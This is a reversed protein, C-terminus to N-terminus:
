KEPKENLDLLGKIPEIIVSRSRIDVSQVIDEVAPILIEGRKGKVVYIDNGATPLVDTIKGVPEGSTTLVNLGVLEFHYYLGEQLTQLQSHHIEMLKGRLKDAEEVTDISDLKLIARGKSWDVATIHVQKQDIFVESGPSFREPFDTTVEVKLQGRVGWPALIRGITIFRAQQSKKASKAPM